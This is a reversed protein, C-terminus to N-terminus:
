ADVERQLRKARAGGDFSRVTSKPKSSPTMLQLPTGIIRRRPTSSPAASRPSVGDSADGDDDDAPAPLTATFALISEIEAMLEAQVDKELRMIAQIHTARDDCQVACGLVLQVIRREVNTEGAGIGLDHPPVGYFVEMIGRTLKAKDQREQPSLSVDDQVDEGLIEILARVTVNFFTSESPFQADRESREEDWAKWIREESPLLARLWQELSGSGASEGQKQIEESM